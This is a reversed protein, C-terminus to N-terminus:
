QRLFFASITSRLSWKGLETRQRVAAIPLEYDVLVEAVRGVADCELVDSPMCTHLELVHVVREHLVM